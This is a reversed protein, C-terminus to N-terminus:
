NCMSCAVCFAADAQCLTTLCVFSIFCFACTSHLNKRQLTCSKAVVLNEVDPVTTVEKPYFILM